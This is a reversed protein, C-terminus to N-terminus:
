GPRCGEGSRYHDIEGRRCQPRQEPSAAGVRDRNWHDRDHAGGGSSCDGCCDYDPNIGNQSVAGMCGTAGAAVVVVVTGRCGSHWIVGMDDTRVDRRLGRRRFGIMSVIM